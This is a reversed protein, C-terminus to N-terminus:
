REPLVLVRTRGAAPLVEITRGGISLAVPAPSAGFETRRVLVREGLRLGSVVPAPGGPVDFTVPVGRDLFEGFRQAESWVEHLLRVELPYEAEGAWLYFTDAGRLLMHWLLERYAEPSMPRFGAAPFKEPDIPHFHVFPIVPLGAPANRGANSAVRLMNYLWRYDPDAFDYWGFLRAWPYVVPMAFTYGTGPFEAAWHRYKARSDALYPQGEEHSEFYDYWERWGDDPYVAYNGVLAKPRAELVPEAFARRQLGSRIDRVAKQFALFDDLGPVAARCRVCKKAAAHARNFELPGDVEWDAWVFDLPLDEKIYAAIFGAVRARIVEARPGLTFPCGIKAQPGFSDDFFPRGAEDRHATEPRGDFFGYLLSTANVAVPVGAKKQARAIVLARALSGAADKAEWSAVLGVGRLDLERVLAEARPADMEGPDMAPWLFLPLRGGRGFGLPKANELVVRIKAPWAAPSSTASGPLATVLSLFAAAAAAPFIRHESM